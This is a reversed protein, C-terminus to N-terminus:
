KDRIAIHCTICDKVVTSYANAAEGYREAKVAKSLEHIHEDMSKTINKVAPISTGKPLAAQMEEHTLADRGKVLNDVGKEIMAPANYLFGKQINNMGQELLGMNSYLTSASASTIGLALCISAVTAKKM